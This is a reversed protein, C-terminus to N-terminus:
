RRPSAGGARRPARRVAGSHRVPAWGRWQIITRPSTTGGQVTSSPPEVIPYGERVTGSRVLGQRFRRGTRASLEGSRRPDQYSVAMPGADITVWPRLSSVLGGECDDDM